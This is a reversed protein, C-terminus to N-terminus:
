VAGRSRASLCWCARMESGRRDQPGHEDVARLRVQVVRLKFAFCGFDLMEHWKQRREPPLVHGRLTLGSDVDGMYVLQLGGSHLHINLHEQRQLGASGQVGDQVFCRGRVQIRTVYPTQRGEELLM